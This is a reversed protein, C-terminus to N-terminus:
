CYSTDLDPCISLLYCLLNSASFSFTTLNASCFCLLLLTQLATLILLFLTSTLSYNTLSTNNSYASFITLLAFLLTISSLSLLFPSFPLLPFLSLYDCIHNSSSFCFYITFDPFLLLLSFLTQYNFCYPRARARPYLFKNLFNSFIFSLPTYLHFATCM